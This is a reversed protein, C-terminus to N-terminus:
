LILFIGSIEILICFIDSFIYIIYIRLKFIIVTFYIFVRIFVVWSFFCSFDGLFGKRNYKEEEGKCLVLKLKINIM